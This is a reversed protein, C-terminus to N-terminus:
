TWYFIMSWLISFVSDQVVENPWIHSTVLLLIAHSNYYAVFSQVIHLPLKCKTECNKIGHLVQSMKMVSCETQSHWMLTGPSFSYGTKCSYTAKTNWLTSQNLLQVESHPFLQPQGCTIAAFSVSDTLVASNKVASSSVETTVLFLLL